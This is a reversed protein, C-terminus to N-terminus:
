KKKSFVIHVEPLERDIDEGYQAIMDAAAGIRYGYEKFGSHHLTLNRGAATITPLTMDEVKMKEIDFITRAIDEGSGPSDWYGAEGRDAAIWDQLDMWAMFVNITDPDNPGSLIVVDSERAADGARYWDEGAGGIMIDNGTGGYLSDQGRGGILIDNGAEGHLDDNGAGGHLYDNGAGGVIKDNGGQGFIADDVPTGFVYDDGKGAYAELGHSQVDENWPGWDKADEPIRYGGANEGALDAGGTGDWMVRNAAATTSFLALAIAIAYLRM